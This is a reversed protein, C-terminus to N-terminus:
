KSEKEMRKIDAEVMITVLDQFTTRSTWGLREKAKRPDGVLQTEEAPRFFDPSIEVLVKGTKTELGRTDIGTGEWRLTIDVASFAHEVFERVSHTEGTALIYDDAHDHQLMQWMGEVYEKAYGWDRKADVNGLVLKDQVGARIRAVGSTIKRTVFETGRLPSEHNYLIGSCAFMKYSERYNVTMWHAFLKAVGYPSRPYFRTRESQPVTQAKGFMESTSAQYFKAEPHELRLTDLLRLAGMAGVESTIMPEDFSQQPFSPSALNYVEDPMLKKITRIINTLELLDMHLITVDKEIGLEKLRWSITEGSRRDAGYVAYGKELLFKSLYAGDQGRIGAILATKM